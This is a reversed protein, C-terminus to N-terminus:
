AAIAACLCVYKAALLGDSRGEFYREQIDSPSLHELVRFGAKNIVRSYAETDLELQLPDGLEELRGALEITFPCGDNANLAEPMTYDFVVVSSESMVGRLSGLTEQLNTATLYPTLGLCSVQTPLHRKLGAKLLRSPLDDAGLNMPVYVPASGPAGRLLTARSMKFDSVEKRDVEYVILDRNSSRFAFTDLGAGLIVYQMCKSGLRRLFGEAYAQRALVEPVLPSTRMYGLFPDSVPLNAKSPFWPQGLWSTYQCSFYERFDNKEDQKLLVEAFYDEFVYPSHGVQLHAARIFAAGMATRAESPYM